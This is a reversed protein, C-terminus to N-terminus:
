DPFRQKLSSNFVKVRTQLGNWGAKKPKRLIELPKERKGIVWQWWRFKTLISQQVPNGTEEGLYPSGIEKGLELAKGKHERSGPVQDGLPCNVAKHM